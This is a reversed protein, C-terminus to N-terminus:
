FITIHGRKVVYLNYNPSIVRTSCLIKMEVYQDFTSKKPILRYYGVMISNPLIASVMSISSKELLLHCSVTKTRTRKKLIFCPYLRIERFQNSFSEALINFSAAFSLLTHDLFHNQLDALSIQISVCKWLNNWLAGNLHVWLKGHAIKIM